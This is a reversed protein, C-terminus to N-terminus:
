FKLYFYQFIYSFNFFSGIKTRDQNAREQKFDKDCYARWEKNEFNMTELNDIHSFPLGYKVIIVLQIVTILDRGFLQSLTHNM